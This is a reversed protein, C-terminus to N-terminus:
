LDFVVMFSMNTQIHMLTDRLKRNIGNGYQHTWMMLKSKMLPPHLSTFSNTSVDLDMLEDEKDSHLSQLEDTRGFINEVM